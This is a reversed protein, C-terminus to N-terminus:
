TKGNRYLKNKIEFENILHRALNCLIVFNCQIFITLKIGEFYM